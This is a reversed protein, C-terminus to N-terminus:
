NNLINFYNAKKELTHSEVQRVQLSTIDVAIVKSHAVQSGVALLIDDGSIFKRHGHM